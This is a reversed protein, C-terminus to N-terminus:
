PGRRVRDLDDYTGAKKRVANKWLYVWTPLGVRLDGWWATRDGVTFRSPFDRRLFKKSSPHELSMFLLELAAYHWSHIEPGIQRIEEELSRSSM